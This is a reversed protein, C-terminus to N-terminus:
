IKIFYSPILKMCKYQILLGINLDLLIEYM